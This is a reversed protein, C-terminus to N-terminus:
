LLQPGIAALSLVALAFWDRPLGPALPSTDVMFGREPFVAPWHPLLRRSRPRNRLSTQLLYLQPIAECLCVARHCSM